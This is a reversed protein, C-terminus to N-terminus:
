STGSGSVLGKELLSKQWASLTKPSICYKAACQELTMDPSQIYDTVIRIKSELDHRVSGPARERREKFANLAYEYIVASDEGMKSGQVISLLM